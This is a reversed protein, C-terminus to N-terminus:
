VPLVSSFSNKLKVFEIGPETWAAILEVGGIRITAAGNEQPLFTLETSQDPLYFMLGAKPILRKVSYPGFHFWLQGEDLRVEVDMQLSENRYRGTLRELEKESVVPDQVEDLALFALVAREYRKWEGRSNEIGIKRFPTEEYMEDMIGRLERFLQVARPVGKVDGVQFYPRDADRKAIQEFFAEGRRERLRQMAQDFDAQYLYILVPELPALIDLLRHIFQKITQKPLNHFLLGHIQYQFVCADLIVVRNGQLTKKVFDEFAELSYEIEQEATFNWTNYAELEEVVAAGVDQLHKRRVDLLDFWVHQRHVWKVRELVPVAEPHKQCFAAYEEETLRAKYFLNIPHSKAVEHYWIADQLNREAQISVFRSTTSKGSGALGEFIICKTSIVACVGM